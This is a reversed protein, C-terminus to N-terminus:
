SQVRNRSPRSDLPKEFRVVRLFHERNFRPNDTQLADAISMAVETISLFSVNRDIQASRLADALLIYDKRTM